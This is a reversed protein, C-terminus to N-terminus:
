YERWKIVIIVTGTIAATRISFNEPSVKKMLSVDGLDLPLTLGAAVTYRAVVSGIGVDSSRYASASVTSSGTYSVVPTLATATAAVGDRELTIECEVSCYVAAKMMQASTATAATPMQITITEAAGVLATKREVTYTGRQAFVALSFLAFTTLLRKM